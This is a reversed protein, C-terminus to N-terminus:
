LSIGENKLDEVLSQKVGGKEAIKVALAAWKQYETINGSTHYHKVLTVVPPLYNLNLRPMISTALFEEDYWDHSLYDLRLRQMNKVILAVNDIRQPSYKYAMGVIYLDDKISTIHQDHVTLAFYVPVDPYNSGLYKALGAIFDRSRYKPLQDYNLQIGKEKLKRDLYEKKAYSLSINLVTVDPRVNQVSQLMWVPFTDNDGNTILIANKETTM